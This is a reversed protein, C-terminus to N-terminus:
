DQAPEAAPDDFGFGPEPLGGEENDALTTTVPAAAPMRKYKPLPLLAVAADAAVILESRRAEPIDQWHCGLIAGELAYLLNLSPKFGARKVKVYAALAGAAELDAQSRIGVQRLWAASKPGINRLKESM